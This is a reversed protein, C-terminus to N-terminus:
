DALERFIRDFQSACRGFAQILAPDFQGQSFTTMIHIATPHGLAPKYPRRSRLADYVDGIAVIRAALPIDAGALRDPYGSGDYWEHHHRAIQSAMHLFTVAAGHQEAVAKLTDSGITTHTQMILREDPELKGPKLLIHDPLGVKGIDHLPACCAVLDIFNEDIQGEFAPMSKAEDALARSYAGLRQLHQGTESDRSEVLKALALILANRSTILDSDRSSLSHELEYNVAYLHRNLIDGRDQADKMRLASKVRSMFQVMSLPKSLFDDAGALLMRSLEDPSVRGSLMVIKLHPSPPDARLNKLVEPGSMVPMDIDLVILDIPNSRAAELGLAGNDATICEIGDTSLALRCFQQISPEDDVILIRPTKASQTAPLHPIERRLTPRERGAEGFTMQRHDRLEPKLFPLLAEMVEYPTAHRARPDHAMMKAVVADLELPLDPKAARISPPPQTERAQLQQYLNDHGAYPAHGTLCWYLTGGLSFIDARIDVSGADKAQEPAIYDLTGLLTGPETMRTSLARALGFDLLKALGDPTVRINSPKIDRHVLHQKHAEALASAVQYIRDCAETVPLPGLRAILEELDSGQVLEMVFYRLDGGDGSANILTGADIAGVINPHQLQAVVRMENLFRSLLRSDPDTPVSLVKIAVQRRLVVHEALFVVGMGGAGLRGLIRYNGLVLGWMRGAAIRDMQYETLLRLRVLSGLLTMADPTAEVAEQVAPSLRDWEEPLVLMKNLLDRLLIPASPPAFESARTLRNSALKNGQDNV